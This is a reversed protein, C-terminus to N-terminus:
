FIGITLLRLKYMRCHIDDTSNEDPIDHNDIRTYDVTIMMMVMILLMMLMVIMQMLM